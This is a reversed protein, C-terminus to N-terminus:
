DLHWTPIKERREEAVAELVKKAFAVSSLEAVRYRDLQVVIEAAGVTNGAVFVVVAELKTSPKLGLDIQAELGQLSESRSRTVLLALWAAQVVTEADGSSSEVFAAAAELM